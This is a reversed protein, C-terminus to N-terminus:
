KAKYFQTDEIKVTKKMEKAWSPEGFAKVNDFHDAGRTYNTFRSFIWAVKAENRIKKPQKDSFQKLDKQMSSFGKIRGRNRIVEGVAVKGKFGQDAAEGLIVQVALRDNYSEGAAYFVCAAILVVFFLIVPKKKM